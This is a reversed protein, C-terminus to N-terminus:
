AKEANIVTRAVRKAAGAPSAKDKDPEPEGLRKGLEDTLTDLFTAMRELTKEQEPTLEEGGVLRVMEFFAAFDFAGADWHWTDQQEPIELHMVWGKFTAAKRSKRRTNDTAMITTIDKLDDRWGDPRLLPVGLEELAFAAVAVLPRLTAPTLRHPTQKAFGVSEVQWGVSNPHFDGGNDRLTAAQATLPRMQVIRDEGVVFHPADSNSRLTAVAGSVTSGETTHLVMARPNALPHYPQGDPRPGEEKEVKYSRGEPGALEGHVWGDGIEYTV